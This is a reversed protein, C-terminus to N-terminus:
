WGDKVKGNLWEEQENLFQNIEEISLESIDAIDSVSVLYQAMGHPIESHSKFTFKLM